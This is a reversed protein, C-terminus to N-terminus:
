RRYRRGRGRVGPAAAQRARSAATPTPRIGTRRPSTLAALYSLQPVPGVTPPAAPATGRELASMFQIRQAPTATGAESAPTTAALRRLLEQVDPTSATHPAPAPAAAVAVANGMAARRGRAAARGLRTPSVETDHVLLAPTEAAAARAGRTLRRSPGTPLGLEVMAQLEALSSADGGMRTTLAKLSPSSFKSADVKLLNAAQLGAVMGRSAIDSDDTVGARRAEDEGMKVAKAIRVEVRQVKRDAKMIEGEILTEAVDPHKELYDTYAADQAIKQEAKRHMAREEFDPTKHLMEMKRIEDRLPKLVAERAAHAATENAAQAKMNAIMVERLTPM